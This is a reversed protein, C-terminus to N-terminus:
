RIFGAPKTRGGQNSARSSAQVWAACFGTAAMGNDACFERMRNQQFIPFADRGSEGGSLGHLQRTLGTNQTHKFNSVGINRVLGAKVCLELAEWTELM